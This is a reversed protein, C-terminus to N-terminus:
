EEQSEKRGRRREERGYLFKRDKRQMTEVFEEKLVEGKKKKVNKMKKKWKREKRKKQVRWQERPAHRPGVSLYLAFRM